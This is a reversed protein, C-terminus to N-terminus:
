AAMRSHIFEFGTDPVDRLVIEDASETVGLPEFLKRGPALHPVVFEECPLRSAM